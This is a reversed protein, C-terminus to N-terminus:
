YADEAPLRRLMEERAERRAEAESRRWAQEYALRAMVGDRYGHRRPGDEMERERELTIRGGRKALDNWGDDWGDRYRRLMESRPPYPAPPYRRGPYDRM